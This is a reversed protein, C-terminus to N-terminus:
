IFILNLKSVLSEIFISMSSAHKYRNLKFKVM